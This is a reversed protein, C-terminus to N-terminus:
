VLGLEWGKFVLENFVIMKNLVEKIEDYFMNRFVLKM